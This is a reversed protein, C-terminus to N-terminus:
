FMKRIRGLAKHFLDREQRELVLFYGIVCFLAAMGIGYAFRLVFELSSVELLFIIMAPVYAAIVPVQRLTNAKFKSHFYWILSFLYISYAIAYSGALGETGSAPVLTFVSGLFCGLWVANLGLAVWMRGVGIITSSIVSGLAIFTSSAFMLIAADNAPEYAAGYLISIVEKLFPLVLLSFPLGLFVALRLLSGSSKGVESMEQQESILPLLPVTIASPVLLVLQSLSEAIQFHGVSDLGFNLALETRGIWYAPVVILSALFSPITFSLLPRLAHKKGFISRAGATSLKVVGRVSLLLLTVSAASAVSMAAVAGGLGAVTISAYTIPQALIAVTANIKALTKIKQSGQLLSSVGLNVSAIFVYIASLRLADLLSSDAYVGVAITRGLVLYAVATVIASGLLMVLLASGVASAYSEDRARWQSVHKTVALPIGFCAVIVVLNQLNVIVSLAGFDSPELLRAAIVSNVIAMVKVVLLSLLTAGGGVLIKKLFGDM